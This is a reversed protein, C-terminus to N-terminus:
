RLDEIRILSDKSLSLDHDGSVQIVDIEGCEVNRLVTARDSVAGGARINSFIWDDHAIVKQASDLVDYKIRASDVLQDSPNRIKWVISCGFAGSDATLVALDLNPGVEGGQSGAESSASCAAVWVASSCIFIERFGM